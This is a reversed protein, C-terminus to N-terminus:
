WRRTRSRSTWYSFEEAHCEGDLEAVRQQLSRQADAIALNYISPGIERLMFDLLLGAQLNGLEEDRQELFYRQLSAIADSRQDKRLEM